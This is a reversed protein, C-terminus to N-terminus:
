PHGKGYNDEASEIADMLADISERRDLIQTVREYDAENFLGSLFPQLFVLAQSGISNLPKVSALFLVAPTAMRRAVVACAIKALLARDEDTLPGYPSELDFAHKVGDRFKRLLEKAM